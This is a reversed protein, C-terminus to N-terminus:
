VPELGSAKIWGVFDSNLRVKYWTPKGDSGNETDLIRVKTGRNVPTSSPKAGEDPEKLLEVKYETVVGEDRADMQRAALWAFCLFLATFMIFIMSGFFGVKRAAVNTAFIYVAVSAMLLIFAMAAYWAWVDSKMERAVSKHVSEFFSLDDPSVKIRKGKLEARNSDEIRNSLYQLNNNIEKNRPDLRHAREYALMALGNDGAKYAANGLNFLMPASTGQQEAVEKYIRVAEEYNGANYASDAQAVSVANAPMLSAASLVAAFIYRLRMKDNKLNRRHTAAATLLITM